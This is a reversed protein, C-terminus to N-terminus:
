NVKLLIEGKTNKFLVDGDGIELEKGSHYVSDEGAINSPFKFRAKPTGIQFYSEMKAGLFKEVKKVNEITFTIKKM